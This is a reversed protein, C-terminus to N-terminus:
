LNNTRLDNLEEVSFKKTRYLDIYMDSISKNFILLDDTNISVKINKDILKRLPEYLNNVRGFILNTQPCLNIKIKQKRIIDLIKDNQIASIGHQIENLDLKEIADVVYEESAFEGVHCRRVMNYKKSYKYIEIADDVGLEEDGVLDISKFYEKDM